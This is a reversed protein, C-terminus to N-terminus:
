EFEYFAGSMESIYYRPLFDEQSIDLFESVKRMKAKRFLRREVMFISNLFSAM